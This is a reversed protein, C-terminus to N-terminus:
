NPFFVEQGNEDTLPKDHTQNYELLANRARGALFRSDGPYPFSNWDTRGTVSLLFRFKVESYEGFYTKWASDWITPKKLIDTITLKYRLRSPYGQKLDASEKIDFIVQVTSDKLGAKRYVYVPVEATFQNAKVVTPGLKYHYGSKATAGDRVVLNIERDIPASNGIIRYSILVVDSTVSSPTTAFSFEASDTLNSVYIATPENFMLEKDRTCSVVLLTAALM